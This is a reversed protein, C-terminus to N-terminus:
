SGPSAGCQERVKIWLTELNARLEQGTAGRARGRASVVLDVSPFEHQRLRFSERIIRRIRNREVADGATKISVALGLRPGGSDNVRATVAFFGNGSRRGRAYAAEFDAKKRLRRQAPFTLKEPDAGSGAL